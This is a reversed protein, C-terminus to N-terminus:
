YTAVSSGVPFGNRKVPRSRDQKQQEPTSSQALASKRRSRGTRQLEDEVSVYGWAYAVLRGKPGPRCMLIIEAGVFPTAITRDLGRIRRRHDRSLTLESDNRDVYRSATFPFIIECGIPKGRENRERFIGEKKGKRNDFFTVIGRKPEGSM